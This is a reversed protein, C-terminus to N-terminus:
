KNEDAEQSVDETTSVPIIEYYSGINRSTGLTIDMSFLSNDTSTGSTLASSPTTDASDKSTIDSLIKKKEQDTNFLREINKIQLEQKHLEDTNNREYLLISMMVNVGHTDVPDGFRDTIQFTFSSNTNGTFAKSNIDININEYYIFSNDPFTHLVEQLVGQDSTSCMNSKVYIRNVPALSICNVSTLSGAVFNNTSNATFGLQIYCATTFKLKPQLTNGTVAFTYLGTNAQTSSPFSVTYVAPSASASDMLIKLTSALNTKGYNGVPVTITYDVGEENLIFTNKGTSFNYFSKPCSLQLLAVRNYNNKPLDIKVDFNTDTGSIKNASDIYFVRPDGYYISM